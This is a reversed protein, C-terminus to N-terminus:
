ILDPRCHFGPRAFVSPLRRVQLVDRELETCRAALNTKEAAWEAQTRDLADRARALEGELQARVDESRDFATTMANM